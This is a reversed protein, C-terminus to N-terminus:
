KLLVSSKITDAFCFNASPFTKVAVTGRDLYEMQSVQNDVAFAPINVPKAVISLITMITTIIYLNKQMFKSM